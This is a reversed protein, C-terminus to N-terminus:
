VDSRRLVQAGETLAVPPLHSGTELNEAGYRLLWPGRAGSELIHWWSGRDVHFSSRPPPLSM